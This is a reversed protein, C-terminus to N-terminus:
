RARATACKRAALQEAPTVTQAVAEIWANVESEVWVSCKPGLSRCKPFRGESMRKYIASRGIGAREMVDPLRLLRLPPAVETEFEPTGATRNNHETDATM